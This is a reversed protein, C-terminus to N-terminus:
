EHDVAEPEAVVGAAPGSPHALRRAFRAVPSRASPGGIDRPTPALRKFRGALWDDLENAYWRSFRRDSAGGALTTWAAPEGLDTVFRYSPAWTTQRGDLLFIQGQHVTARGGRLVLPGRDFGAWGPLRGGLMLHRLTVQRQAGWPRAPRDLARELAARYVSERSAGGFWGSSEALLVRDFAGYFGAFIATNNALCGAVEVGCVGGVVERLLEQYFREFLTAGLSSPEYDCDWEHLLRGERTTPLLPRLLTMYREAQRSHVDMQMCHVDTVRWDARRQLLEAIRTARDDGMPLTIPKERGLDNLNNNASVLYGTAPSTARPLEDPSVFGQWDNTPDWGPLPVLGRWGARRRPMLGSMQYGIDGHRDALAWNWATEVGGLAAAGEAVDSARMAAFGAALSAAGTGTAGSWRTALRLAPQHPDGDLIGHDNEYVVMRVAPGRRREIVESRAQFPQWSERGDIVRRYAGERCDEIWSDVADLCAYTPSWALAETRCVAPFPLGPITTMVAFRGDFELVTEYWVAPLRNVELHPDGALIAHGGATRTAAIAWNNSALAGPAASMWRVGDPVTREGLRVERVLATDLGDLLGPFLEELRERSVGGQVMQVLLREMDAQHQAVQVYGMARSIAISDSITWPEPRYRLLRLEWPYREALTANLGECYAAALARDGSRLKGAEEEAEGVLNMRRFFRDLTLMADNAQLLESGRGAAVVRMLLLQLARDAGHCSGLGRYADSESVARVHPVGHRDRVVEVRSEGDVCWRRDFRQRFVASV